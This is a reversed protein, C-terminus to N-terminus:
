NQRVLGNLAKAPRGRAKKKNLNNPNCEPPCTAEGAYFATGIIHKCMLKKIYYPCTCTSELWEDAFNVEYVRQHMNQVYEDFNNSSLIADFFTHVDNESQINNKNDDFEKQSIIYILNRNAPIVKSQLDPNSAFIAGNTWDGNKIIPSTHFVKPDIERAYMQSIHRLMQLFVVSFQTMPQRERLTHDRKLTLNTGETGNNTNPAKLNACAYWHPNKSVWEKKFYAVFEPEKAQWKELFLKLEHDFIQKSQCQELVNIDNKILIKNDKNKYPASLLAKKMHFNCMLDFDTGEVYPFSSSFGNKIAMAADSM